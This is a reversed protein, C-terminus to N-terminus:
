PRVASGPAAPTAGTEPTVLYAVSHEHVKGPVKVGVEQGPTAEKVQAHEIQLSSVDVHVDDHAGRIVLKDGVRVRREFKVVAVGIHGFFHMVTGARVESMVPPHLPGAM